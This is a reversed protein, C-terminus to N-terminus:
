DPKVPILILKRSIERKMGESVVGAAHDNNDSSVFNANKIGKELIESSNEEINIRYLNKALILFLENKENVYSLKELDKKLFEFSESVPIFSKKQWTKIM